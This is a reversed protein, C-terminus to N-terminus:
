WSGGVEHRFRPSQKAGNFLGVKDTVDSTVGAGYAARARNAATAARASSEAVGPLHGFRGAVARADLLARAIDDEGAGLLLRQAPTASPLPARSVARRQATGARRTAGKLADIQAHAGRKAGASARSSTMTRGAAARRASSGRMAAKVADRGAERSATARSAVQASKAGGSLLRGAGLTVLAFVDLGVDVWSGEGSAALLSHGALAILTLGIAALAILNVGPIFLAVVMLGTAVWSAIEAVASIWDANESVWNKVKEWRSDKLGDDNVAEHIAEEARRASKDRLEVAADLKRRAAALADSADGAARDSCTQQDKRDDVQETTADDPLSGTPAAAAATRAALEAAKADCLAQASDTQAQVLDPAYAALAGAVTSYRGHAQDLKGAADEAAGRFAEAAEAEWGDAAALRRLGAAQTTMESAANRCRTAAASVATPDGPVPDSGALPSWDVPRSM